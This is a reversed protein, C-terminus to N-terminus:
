EGFVCSIQENLILGLVEVPSGGVHNEQGMLDPTNDFMHAGRANLHIKCDGIQQQKEMIEKGKREKGSERKGTGEKQMKKKKVSKSGNNEKNQRQNLM